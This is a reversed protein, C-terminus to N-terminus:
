GGSSFSNGSDDSYLIEGNEGPTITGGDFFSTEEGPDTVSGDDSGGDSLAAGLTLVALVVGAAILLTKRTPSAPRPSHDM